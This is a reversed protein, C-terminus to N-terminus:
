ALARLARLVVGPRLYGRYLPTVQRDLDLLDYVATQATRVSYEVTFVTDEPVECYQGLFAFNSAGAPVVQPRDGADRPMFQSTIFPMACPICNASAVIRDEAEGVPLHHFLETLLERGSCEAMPKDVRNGKREPHLGYGWFVWADDPQNAFHPQYALVVSM